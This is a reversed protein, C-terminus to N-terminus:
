MQYLLHLQLLLFNGAPGVFEFEFQGNKLIYCYCNIKISFSSLNCIIISLISICKCSISAKCKFKYSRISICTYCTANPLTKKLWDVRAIATGSNGARDEFEFTYEGSDEFVHINGGKVTVGEKNFTITATVDQM